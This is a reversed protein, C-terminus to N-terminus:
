PPAPPPEIPPFGAHTQVVLRVLLDISLCSFMLFGEFYVVSKVVVFYFFLIGEQNIGLKRYVIGWMPADYLPLVPTELGARRSPRPSEPRAHFQHM